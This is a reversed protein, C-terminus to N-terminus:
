SRPKKPAPRTTQAHPQTLTTSQLRAKPFDCRIIYATAALFTRLASEKGVARSASACFTRSAGFSRTIPARFAVPSLRLISPM